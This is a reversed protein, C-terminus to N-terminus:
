KNQCYKKKVFYSKATEILKREADLNDISTNSSDM